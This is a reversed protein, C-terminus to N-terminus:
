DGEHGIVLSRPDDFTIPAEPETDGPEALNWNTAPLAVYMWYHSRVARIIEHPTKGFHDAAEGITVDGSQGDRFLPATGVICREEAKEWAWEQVENSFHILDRDITAPLLM